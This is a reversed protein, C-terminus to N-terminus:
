TKREKIEREMSKILAALEADLPDIPKVDRSYKRSDLKDMILCTLKWTLRGLFYCALVALAERIM